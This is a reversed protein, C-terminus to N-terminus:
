QGIIYKGRVDDSRMDEGLRNFLLHATVTASSKMLLDRQLRIIEMEAADGHEEAIGEIGRAKLVEVHHERVPQEAVARILRQINRVSRQLFGWIGAQMSVHADDTIGRFANPTALCKLVM